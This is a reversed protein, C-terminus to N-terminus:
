MFLRKQLIQSTEKNRVWQLNIAATHTAGLRRHLDCSKYCRYLQLNDKLRSQFISASQLLCFNLKGKYCHQPSAIQCVLNVLPATTPYYIVIVFSLGGCRLPAWRENERKGAWKGFKMKSAPPPYLTYQIKYRIKEGESHRARKKTM